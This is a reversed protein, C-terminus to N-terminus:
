TTATHNKGAPLYFDTIKARTTSKPTNPTDMGTTKNDNKKKEYILKLPEFIVDSATNTQENIIKGDFTKLKYIEMNELVNLRQGKHQVHLLKAAKRIQTPSCKNNFM